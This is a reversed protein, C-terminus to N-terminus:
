TQMSNQYWINNSNFSHVTIFFEFDIWMSMFILYVVMSCLFWHYFQGLTLNNLLFKLCCECIWGHFEELGKMISSEGRKGLFHVWFRLSWSSKWVKLWLLFSGVLYNVILNRTCSHWIKKKKRISLFLAYGKNILINTKFTFM